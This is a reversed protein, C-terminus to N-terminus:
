QSVRYEAKTNFTPMIRRGELRTRIFGDRSLQGCVALSAETVIKVCREVSQTHCPYRGFEITSQGGAKVFLKIDEEPVDMTLPPETIATESWDILQFYENADFNLKSVSFQRLTSKSGTRLQRVKLIRRLGLERVYQRKDSIMALLLNEPHGFYANRQLVPDIIDRLERSLYRSLQITRFLHRAGDKCSSNMKISFWLPAYVKMIYTVLHKLNPSPEDCAVYLRLLRNATTLWRSHNLAGPNRKSLDLSCQGKSVADCMEWLYKQDRSLDKLAVIPM